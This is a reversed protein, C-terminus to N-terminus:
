RCILAARVSLARACIASDWEARKRVGLVTEALSFIRMEFTTGDRLDPACQARKHGADPLEGLGNTAGCKVTGDSLPIRVCYWAVMGPVRQGVEPKLSQVQHAKEHM